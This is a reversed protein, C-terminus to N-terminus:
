GSTGNTTPIYYTTNSTYNHVGNITPLGYYIDRETAIYNNTSIASATTSDAVACWYVSSSGSARLLYGTYGSSYSTGGSTSPAEIAKLRAAETVVLRGSVTTNKLQAM